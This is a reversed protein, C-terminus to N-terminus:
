ANTSLNIENEYQLKALELPKGSLELSKLPSRKLLRRSYIYGLMEIYKQYKRELYIEADKYIYNLFAFTKKISSYELSFVEDSSRKKFMGNSTIGTATFIWKEIWLLLKETGVIKVEDKRTHCTNNHTHQIFHTHCGDGDFYGRIFHSVFKDEINPPMIKLTKHEVVGHTVLSNFIKEGSFLLRCYENNSYGQAKYCKIPVNSKMATNLKELHNVDKISLTLGFKKGSKTNSVYGDAYIFGLWYAKEETDIEKFYNEDYQYKRSNIRNSRVPINRKKLLRWITGAHYNYKEGIKITSLGDQYEQIIQEEIKKDM